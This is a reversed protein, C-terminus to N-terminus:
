RPILRSDLPFYRVDFNVMLYILISFKITSISSWNFSYQIVDAKCTISTIKSWLLDHEKELAAAIM